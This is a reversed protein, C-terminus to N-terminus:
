LIMITIFVGAMVGLLNYLRIKVRKEERQIELSQEMRELYLNLTDLQMKSDLYGITQGLEIWEKRDKETLSKKYFTEGATQEWLESLRSGDGTELKGALKEFFAGVMGESRRSIGLFAEPLPTRGFAIDGRLCLLSRKLAKLNEYKLKVLYSEYLGLGGSGLLVCM